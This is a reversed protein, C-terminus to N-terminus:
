CARYLHLQYRMNELPIPYRLGDAVRFWISDHTELREWKHPKPTNENEDDDEEEGGEEERSGKDGDREEEQGGEEKKEAVKGGERKGGGRSAPAPAPAASMLTHHLLWQMPYRRGEKGVTTEAYSGPSDVVLLLTGRPAHATLSRLFTTTPKIGSTTYLENLTFLLTILLPTGTDADTDTDTNSPSPSSFLAKLDTRLINEQTIRPRFSPLFPATEVHSDTGPKSVTLPSTLTKTLTRLVGEWPATDLLNIEPTLPKRTSTPSVQSLLSGHYDAIAALEAAAGGICLIRLPKRGERKDEEGGAGAGAGAAEEELSLTQIKGATVTEQPEDQKSDTASAQDEEEEEDSEEVDDEGDKPHSRISRGGMLKQLYGDLGRFIHGYCLARTPSWRAAYVELAAERAFAAEFDRHFLATKVEQLQAAFNQSHLVDRFATSFINLLAQQRGKEDEEGQSAKADPAHAQASSSSSSSSSPTKQSHSARKAPKKKNSPAPKSTSYSRDPINKERTRKHPM